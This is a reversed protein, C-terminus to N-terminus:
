PWQDLDNAIKFGANIVKTREASNVKLIPNSHNFHFFHIKAKDTQKLTCFASMSDQLTPHPIHARNRNPLEAMSYFTGDLWAIDCNQIRSVIDLATDNWHDIDSIYIARNGDSNILFGITESHEDRHPVQIPTLTLKPSLHVDSQHQLVKFRIHGQSILDCWPANNSLFHMMRPMVYVPMSQNAWAEKGLQLLGTYHGLHAHTIFIGNLGWDAPSVQNLRHWQQPFAPTCDIMWRKKEFPDILGLACPLRHQDPQSWVNVCCESTCGVQPFGGDQATGLLVTTVENLM